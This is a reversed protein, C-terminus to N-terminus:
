IRKKDKKANKIEKIKKKVWLFGYVTEHYLISFHNYGNKIYLGLSLCPLLLFKLLLMFFLLFPYMIAYGDGQLLKISLYTSEYRLMVVWKPVAKKLSQGIFHTIKVHSLYRIKYNNRMLRICFENDEFFMPIDENFGGLKTYITKPFMMYAGQIMEVDRDNEHNWFAMDPSKLFKIGPFIKDLLITGFLAGRLTTFQKACAFQIRNNPKLTKVGVCGYSKNNKLFSISEQLTNEYIITDPNLALIYKGTARLFGINNARPFGINELLPIVTTEPHQKRIKDCSKDNSNNDIVIIEKKINDAHLKISNLCNNIHYWCNWSVIIISLTKEAKYM